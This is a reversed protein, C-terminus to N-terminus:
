TGAAEPQKLEKALKERPLFPKRLAEYFDYGNEFDARTDNETKAFISHEVMVFVMEGFDKCSRIGWEEFVTMAMPGFQQLGYDRIGGLLQQGSVHKVGKGAKGINKQTYDLAERVFLYADRPFRKDKALIQELVEEFAVQQM